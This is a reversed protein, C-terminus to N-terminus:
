GSVFRGKLFANCQRRIQINLRYNAVHYVYRIKNENTVPVDRGGPILDVVNGDVSGIETDESISFDLSLDACDGEYHKLFLLNKHVEPDRAANLCMAFQATLRWALFLHHYVPYFWETKNVPVSIEYM